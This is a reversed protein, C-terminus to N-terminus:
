QVESSGPPKWLVLATEAQARQIRIRKVEEHIGGITREINNGQMVAATAIDDRTTPVNGTAIIKTKLESALKAFFMYANFADPLLPLGKEITELARRFAAVKQGPRQKCEEFLEFHNLRRNEPDIVKDLLTQKYGDYSFSALEDVSLNWVKDPVAQHCYLVKDYGDM